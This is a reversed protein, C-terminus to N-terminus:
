VFTRFGLRGTSEVSRVLLELERVCRRLWGRQGGAEGLLPVCGSVALGYRRVMPVGGRFVGRPGRGERSKLLYTQSFRVLLESM